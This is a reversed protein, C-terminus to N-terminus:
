SAPPDSSAPLPRHASDPSVTRGLRGRLGDYTGRLVMSVKAVRDTRDVFLARSGLKSVSRTARWARVRLKSHRPVPQGQVRQVRLRHHVQNRAEYYYKWAPKERSARARSVRVIAGSCLEVRFGARPIRWQLYETDETWWFLDRNPVGVAEVVERAVLAGWWGIGPIPEGTADDRADGLVVGPRRDPPERTCVLLRALTDVEPRCDDDMIWVWEHATDLFDELGSAYGGAPGSNEGLALLRTSPFADVVDDVPDASGNDVVVIEALAESQESLSRLCEALAEPADFTLVMAVVSGPPTHLNTDSVDAARPDPIAALM